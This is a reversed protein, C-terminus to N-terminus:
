SLPSFSVVSFFLCFIIAQGLMVLLLVLVESIASLSPRGQPNTHSRILGQKVM